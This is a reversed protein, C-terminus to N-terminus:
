AVRQPPQLRRFGRPFPPSSAGTAVIESVLELSRLLDAILYPKRIAAEGDAATLATIAESGSAYLVGPRAPGLQAVIDRGEDGDALNLDILALDPHRNECLWLAEAVTRAIGCVNYGADTLLLEAMDAILLDDEAIIVTLPPMNTGVDLEQM